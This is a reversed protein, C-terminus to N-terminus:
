NIVKKLNNIEKISNNTYIDKNFLNDYRFIVFGKYNSINRALIVERMLINNDQIWERKGGKAYQDEMGIKYGALAILLGLNDRKILNQWESLAEPYSKAENHFGYYIQPIIFDLYNDEKMWKVVDAYNKEYNNNINGDPSIGFKVNKVKCENYVRSIMKNVNLLHYETLSLYKHNVLYNNYDAIDIDDSMYFYDDFLLGDVNYDLVEKVGQVILNIVEEKAPNFYIGKNVYITDTGIYKYAPNDKSISNINDTTKIRYPNIWAYLKLNNDHAEKIFYELIDYQHKDGVYESYPFIKSEYISDSAIRVQLIITNLNYEKINKIMKQINAKSTNEDYDKIYESLEIYSIFVGRIEENKVPKNINILILLLLIILILRKM